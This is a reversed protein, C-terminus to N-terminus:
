DAAAANAVQAATDIRVDYRDRLSEYFAQKARDSEAKLWDREVADRVEDLAPLYGPEHREIRVLHLGYSSRM